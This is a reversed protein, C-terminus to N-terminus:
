PKRQLRYQERLRRKYIKGNDERPLKDVFDVARPCKFRALRSRCLALLEGVLEDSATVGARLEVVALVSEGWEHDPVGITAADAVAPHELLVADVEAPYINVGGSIILNADRDTLFLFGDEDLYGMDGLTFRNGRYASTTKTDDGFYSFREDGQAATLWILGVEAPPLPQADKDGVIVWGPPLPRGVTGPRQLWTRSDVLTGTGETAAYYEYVIPGLWEIIAQKVAVSCPAAGHIIAKLSSVDAAAREEDPLALLRHFMTPVLHAHTVRHKAILELTSQPDWQEMVVTTVGAALPLAVAFALPAAHYLPGTCLHVDGPVYGYPLLAAWQIPVFRPRHVGKPRGTTGSTYLMTGGLVPDELSAASAGALADEYSAFGEISGAFALRVRAGPVSVAVAVDALAADAIFAAAGCDGAIYAVEDATLHSNIPTLRLGTQICAAYVEFFEVRNTALLAVADGASLGGARLVRALQAARGELEAYTRDGSPSIVAMRDPEIAAYLSLFTGQAAAAEWEERTPQDGVM